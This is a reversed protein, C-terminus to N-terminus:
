PHNKPSGYEPIRPKQTPPTYKRPIVSCMAIQPSDEEKAIHIMAQSCLMINPMLVQEQPIFVPTGFIPSFHLVGIVLFIKDM